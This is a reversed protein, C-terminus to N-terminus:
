LSSALSIAEILTFSFIRELKRPTLAGIKNICNQRHLEVTRRSLNLSEGIQKSSHGKYVHHMIELQRKTLATDFPVWFNAPSTFGEIAKEFAFNAFAEPSIMQEYGYYAFKQNDIVLTDDSTQQNDENFVLNIFTLSDTRSLTETFDSDQKFASHQPYISAIYTGDNSKFHSFGKLFRIDPLPHIVKTFLINVNLVLCFFHM